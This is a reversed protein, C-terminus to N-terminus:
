KKRVLTLGDGVPLMSIEVRTDQHIHRNMNRIAITSEEQNDDDAVSGGWLVNDVLLLGGSKLLQLVFEYYIQYNVKDADIFAFDFTGSEDLLSKLTEEAPAIRLDIKHEVGAVKWYKQGISTWTESIDCAILKGDEPLSQAVCLASYGTFTGVEIAKKASLLSVLLGMFQGQEPSIQMMGYEMLATEGRLKQCHESERLSHHLMYSYVSESLGLSRSSM